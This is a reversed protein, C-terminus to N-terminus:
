KRPSSALASLLGVVALAGVVVVGIGFATGIGTGASPVNSHWDPSPNPSESHGLSRLFNLIDSTSLAGAVNHVQVSNLERM